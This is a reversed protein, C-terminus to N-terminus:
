IIHGGYGQEPEVNLCDQEDDIHQVLYFTLNSVAKRDNKWYIRRRALNMCITQGYHDWIFGQTKTM